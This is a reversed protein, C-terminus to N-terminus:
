LRLEENTERDVSGDGTQISEFYHTKTFNWIFYPFVVKIGEIASWTIVAALTRATVLDSIWSETTSKGTSLLCAKDLEVSM